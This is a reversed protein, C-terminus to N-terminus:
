RPVRLAVRAFWTGDCRRVDRMIEPLLIDTWEGFPIVEDLNADYVHREAGTVETAVWHTHRYAAAVPVGEKLWPGGFQVFILGRLPWARRLEDTNTEAVFAVRRQRLADRMATPTTWPKPLLVRTEEVEVGLLAALAGHGCSASWAANCADIDRPVHLTM